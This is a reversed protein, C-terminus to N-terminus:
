CADFETVGAAVLTGDFRARVSSFRVQFRIGGPHLVVLFSASFGLLALVPLATIVLGKLRLPQNLWWSQFIQVAIKM